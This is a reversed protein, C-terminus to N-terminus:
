DRPLSRSDERRPPPGDNRAPSRSLSRRAPSADRKYAGPQEFSDRRPSDRGPSAGRRPLSDRRPPSNRKVPSDRRPPPSRQASSRPPSRRPPPSRDRRPSFSRRGGPSYSRRRPAGNSRAPLQDTDRERRIMERPTKRDDRSWKVELTRGGFLKNDLEIQADEADRMDHFEVFGFGQFRRTYHNMPLYVDKLDGYTRFLDEVESKRTDLPLNRIILSPRRSRDRFSMTSPPSLCAVTRPLFTHPELVIDAAPFAQLVIAGSFYERARLECAASDYRDSVRLPTQYADQEYGGCLVRRWKSSHAHM